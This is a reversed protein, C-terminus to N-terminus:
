GGNHTDGPMPDLPCRGNFGFYDDPRTAGYYCLGLGIYFGHDAMNGNDQRAHNDPPMPDRPCHQNLGFYDDPRTAPYYCVGFGAAYFGDDHGDNPLPGAAAGQAGAALALALAVLTATLGIKKM